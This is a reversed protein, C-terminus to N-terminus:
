VSGEAHVNSSSGCAYCRDNGTCGRADEKAMAAEIIVETLETKAM